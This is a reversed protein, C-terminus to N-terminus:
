QYVDDEPLCHEAYIEAMREVDSLRFVIVQESPYNKIVMCAEGDINGVGGEIQDSLRVKLIQDPSM